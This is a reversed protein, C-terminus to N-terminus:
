STMNITSTGVALESVNKEYKKGHIETTSHYYRHRVIAGSFLILKPKNRDM